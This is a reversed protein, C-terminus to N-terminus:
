RSLLWARVAPDETLAAARRWAERAALTDGLLGLVHARTAWWPQYGGLPEALGDLERLAAHPQGAGALAAARAVLVGAAPAIRALLDYLGLLAGAHDAGTLRMEVHVSQIAAEIQFRGLTAARAADRLLTEAEALFARSWRAPDQAMLPVFGGADDRRAPRRAEAHLMLALLGKPEPADPLLAVLLRALWIAEETLGRGGAEDPLLDAWGTGFAAYIAAMVAELRPPLEAPGPPDFAIGADRIRAKARVLRQAMAAPATLFCAAIRVADLGLVLQLMLPAQAEAAIAPHACVMLLQLRRDPIEAMDPAVEMLLRLTPEAAAQVKRHRLMHGHRRRAVTLLWAEPSDPVGREPWLRLAAHFAEALADEAAALDRTGAALIAVLRGYALRAAREAAHAAASM